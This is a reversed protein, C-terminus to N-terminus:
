ENSLAVGSETTAEVNAARQRNGVRRESHSACSEGILLYGVDFGLYGAM